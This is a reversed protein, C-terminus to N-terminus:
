TARQTDLAFLGGFGGLAGLVQPGHTTRIADRMARKAVDATDLNVGASAYAKASQTM